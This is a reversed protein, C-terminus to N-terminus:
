WMVAARKGRRLIYWRLIRGAIAIVLGVGWTALGIVLGVAWTVDSGAVVLKVIKSAKQQSQNWTSNTYKNILKALDMGLASYGVLTPEKSGANLNNDVAVPSISMLAFAMVFVM